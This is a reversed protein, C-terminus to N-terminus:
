KLNKIFQQIASEFKPLYLVFFDNMKQWDAKTDDDDDEEATIALQDRGSLDLELAAVRALTEVKSANIKRYLALGEAFTM